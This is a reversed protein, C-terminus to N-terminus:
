VTLIVPFLSERLWLMSTEITIRGLVMVASVAEALTLVVTVVDVEYTEHAVPVGNVM